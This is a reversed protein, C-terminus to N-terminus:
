DIGEISYTRDEEDVTYTKNESNINLLRIEETITHLTNENDISATRYENPVTYVIDLLNLIVSRVTQSFVSNLSSQAAALLGASLETDTITDLISEIKVDKTAAVTETFLTTLDIEASTNKIAEFDITFDTDLNSSGAFIRTVTSDLTITTDLDADGDFIRTVTADVDFNGTISSEGPKTIGALCELEAFAQCTIDTAKQALASISPSFVGSFDANAFRNANADIETTFVNNLDQPQIIANRDADVDITFESTVTASSFLNVFYAEATINSVSNLNSEVFKTKTAAASMAFTSALTISSAKELRVDCSINSNSNVSADVNRTVSIEVNINSQSSIDIDGPRTAAVDITPAFVGNLNSGTVFAANANSTINAQTSLTSSIGIVIEADISLAADTSLTSEADIELALDDTFDNNFRALVLTDETNAVTSVSTSISTTNGEFKFLDFGPADNNAYFSPYYLFVRNDSEFIEDFATISTVEDFYGTNNFSYNLRLTVKKESHDYVLSIFNWADITMALDTSLEVQNDANNYTRVAVRGANTHYFQVQQDTDNFPPETTEFTDAIACMLINDPDGDDYYYWFSLAWDKNQLGNTVFAPSSELFFTKGTDTNNDFFFSHTGEKKTTSNFNYDTTTTPSVTEFVKPTWTVPRQTNNWKSVFTFADVNLNFETAPPRFFYDAEIYDTEFYDSVGVTVPKVVTHYKGDYYDGDFYTLDTM